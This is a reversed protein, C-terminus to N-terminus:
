SLGHGLLTFCLLACIMCDVCWRSICLTWRHSPNRLGSSLLRYKLALLWDFSNIQQCLDSACSTKTMWLMGKRYLIWENKPVDPTQIKLRIIVSFLWLLENESVWKIWLAKPWQCYEMGTYSGSAGFHKVRPVSLEVGGGGLCLKLETTQLM